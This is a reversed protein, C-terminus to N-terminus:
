SKRRSMLARAVRSHSPRGLHASIFQGADVLANLDIGTDIGMGQLM